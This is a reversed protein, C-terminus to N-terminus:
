WQLTKQIYVIINLWIVKTYGPSSASGAADATGNRFLGKVQRWNPQVIETLPLCPRLPTCFGQTVKLCAFPQIHCLCLGTANPCEGSNRRGAGNYLRQIIDLHAWTLICCSIIRFFECCALPQESSTEFSFVVLLVCIGQLAWCTYSMSLSTLKFLGYSKLIQLYPHQSSTFRFVNDRCGFTYIRGGGGAAGGRTQVTWLNNERRLSFRRSLEENTFTLCM